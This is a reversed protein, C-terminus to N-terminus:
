LGGLTKVTDRFLYSKQRKQIHTAKEAKVKMVLTFSEKNRQMEQKM